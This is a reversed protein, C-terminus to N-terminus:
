GTERYTLYKIGEPKKWSKRKAKKKWKSYTIGPNANIKRSIKQAEKVQSKTDTMLKSFNYAM